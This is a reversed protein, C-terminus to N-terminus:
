FWDSVAAQLAHMETDYPGDYREEVTDSTRVWYSNEYVTYQRVTRDHRAPQLVSRVIEKKGDSTVEYEYVKDILGIFLAQFSTVERTAFEPMGEPAVFWEGSYHHLAERLDALTYGSCEFTLGFLWEALKVVEQDEDFYICILVNGDMGGVTYHGATNYWLAYRGTNPAQPFKEKIVM